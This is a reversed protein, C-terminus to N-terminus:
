RYVAHAHRIAAIELLRWSLAALLMVTILSLLTVSLSSWDSVNSRGGLIAFHLLANIGQHFIYVADAVTGLKVLVQSCTLAVLVGFGLTDARSLLLDSRSPEPYLTPTPVVGSNQISVTASNGM